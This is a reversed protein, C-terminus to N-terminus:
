RAVESASVIHRDRVCPTYPKQRRSSRKKPYSLQVGSLMKSRRVIVDVKLGGFGSLDWDTPGQICADLVM